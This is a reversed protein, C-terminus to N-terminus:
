FHTEMFLHRPVKSLAELVNEDRIGKIKLGEVLRKRM